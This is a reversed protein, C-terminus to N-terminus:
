DQGDSAAQVLPCGREAYPLGEEVEMWQDENVAYQEISSTTHRDDVFGGLCCMRGMRVRFSLIYDVPYSFLHM